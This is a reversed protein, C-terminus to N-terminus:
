YFALRRLLETNEALKQGLLFIITLTLCIVLLFKLILDGYAIPGLLAIFCGDVIGIGLVIAVLTYYSDTLPIAITLLGMVFFAIQQLFIRNIGKCDAILGFTIRGIISTVGLCMIPLNEDWGPFKSKVYKEMHVYPVFYGLLAVPIALAWIVYRKKKWNDTNILSRLVMDARTQGPKRKAPPLPIQRPKYILACLMVICSMCGLVCCTTSLGYNTLLFKLIKPLIVQFISSSSTVFGSIIGLYNHFYHGLIALTPTYALAAGTGFIVGFSMYLIILNSWFAASIFM